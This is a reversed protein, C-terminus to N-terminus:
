SVRGLAGRRGREFRRAADRGMEERVWGALDFGLQREAFDQAGLLLEEGREIAKRVAARTVPTATGEALREAEDDLTRIQEAGEVAHGLWWGPEEPLGPLEDIVQTAVAGIEEAMATARLLHERAEQQGHGDGGALKQEAEDLEGLLELTHATIATCADGLPEVLEDPLPAEDHPEPWPAGPPPLERSRTASWVGAAVLAVILALLVFSM